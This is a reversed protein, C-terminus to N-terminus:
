GCSGGGASNRAVVREGARAAPGLLARVGTSEVEGTRRLVRLLADGVGRCSAAAGRYSSRWRGGCAAAFGGGAARAALRVRADLWAAPLSLFDAGGFLFRM